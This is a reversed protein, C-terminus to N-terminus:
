VQIILPYSGFTEINIEEPLIVKVTANYGSRLPVRFIRVKPLTMNKVKERLWENEDLDAIKEVKGDKESDSKYLLVKPVDPGLCNIVFYKLAKSFVAKNYLCGEPVKITPLKRDEKNRGQIQYKRLLLSIESETRNRIEILDCTLCEPNEFNKGEEGIIRYLHLNTDDNPLRATFYSTFFSSFTLILVDYKTDYFDTIKM